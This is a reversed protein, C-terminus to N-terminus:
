FGQEELPLQYQQKSSYKLEIGEGLLIVTASFSVQSMATGHGKKWAQALEYRM